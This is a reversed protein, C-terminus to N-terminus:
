PAAAPVPAPRRALAATLLVSALFAWALFVLFGAVAVADSWGTTSAVEVLASVLRFAVVAVGVWAFWRPLTKSGFLAATAAGAFAAAAFNGMHAAGVGVDHLVHADSFGESTVTAPDVGGYLDALISWVGIAVLYLAATAAAGAVGLPGLGTVAALTEAFWLFAVAALGVLATAWLTQTGHAAYHEVVTVGNGSSPGPNLLFAALALVAFVAGGSAGVLQLRV